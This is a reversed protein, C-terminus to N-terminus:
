RVIPRSTGDCCLTDGETSRWGPRASSMTLCHGSWGRWFEPTHNPEALHALEHVIIYDVVSAPLLIAAWHFNLNGARGVPAGASASTGCTSVRRNSGWGPHGVKSENGSGPGPMSPIGPSSSSVGRHPWPGGCGSGARRWGSRHSEQDDVLLLRYSRGLYPFGEGSVLEKGAM